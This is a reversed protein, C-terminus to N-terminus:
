LKDFYLLDFSKAVANVCSFIDVGCCVWGCAYCVVMGKDVGNAEERFASESEASGSM